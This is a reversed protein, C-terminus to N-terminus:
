NKFYIKSTDDFQKIVGDLTNKVEDEKADEPMQKRVRDEITKKFDERDKHGLKSTNKGYDKVAKVTKIADETEYGNKNLEYATAIDRADSLGYRVCQDGVEDMAEKAETIGGTRKALERQLKMNNRAEKINAQIQEKKIDEEPLAAQKFIKADEKINEGIDAAKDGFGKAFKYGGLAAGTMYQAAKSPDGSTIGVLGAATMATAAGAAGAVGRAFSRLPKKNKSKLVIRQGQNALVEQFGRGLKLKKKDKTSVGSNPINLNNGGALNVNGANLVANKAGNGNVHVGGPATGGNLVNTIAGTNDKGNISVGGTVTTNEKNAGIVKTSLKNALEATKGGYVTATDLDEKVNIKGDDSSSASSSGSGGIEKPPKGGHPPRGLLKNVGGMMIAAGAPGGLFGPTHAKEFGFFQRLLKEGQTMFGLVIVVYFLNKSAFDFASGVLVMYLILHLPQILLNFIYEKFWKNFAQAQGDNMKDIPYTLAVLPAILTLFAMYVVRKLYTFAFIFTYLVLVIYIIKYGISAYAYNTVADDSDQYQLLMRAQEMFNSTPWKLVTKGNEEVFLGSFESSNDGSELVEKAKKVKTDDDITFVQPAKSTSVGNSDATGSVGDPLTDGNEIIDTADVLNTLKKVFINSFSMIYHMTFLLCIAVIWDMLWQKYKAKDGASSSIIIRIGVYVLVSLLAVLAVNRLVVYWTSITSQLQKSTSELVVEETEADTTVTKYYAYTTKTSNGTGSAYQKVKYTNTDTKIQYLVANEGNISTNGINEGNSKFYELVAKGILDTKSDSLAAEYATTAEKANTIDVKFDHEAFNFTAYNKKNETTEKYDLTVEKEETKSPTTVVTRSQDDMPNFFDVDFLPVQNAFIEYPSLKIQPLVFDEPLAANAMYDSICFTVIGAIAGAKLVTLVTSFALAAGHFLM